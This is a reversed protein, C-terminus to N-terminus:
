SEGQTRNNSTSISSNGISRGSLGNLFQPIAIEWRYGLPRTVTCHKGAISSCIEEPSALRNKNQALYYLSDQSSSLLSFFLLGNLPIAMVLFLILVFHNFIFDLFLNM